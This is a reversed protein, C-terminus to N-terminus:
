TIIKNRKIKLKSRSKNKKFRFFKREIKVPAFNIKKILNLNEEVYKKIDNIFNKYGDYGKKMKYISELGTEWKETVEPSVLPTKEIHKILEAGKDSCELKSKQVLYCYVRKKLTEIINARTAPTGLNYKEMLKLINAESYQPPPQTQREEYQIQEVNLIDGEKIEVNITDKMDPEYLEKWGLQQNKRGTVKFKYKGVQLIINYLDYVYDPYFVGLFKRMILDYIKKHNETLKDNDDNWKQMVIIAYHDTLKSDNFIFKNAFMKPILDSRDIKKLIGAVLTRSSEALFQSDTRPYSILKHEYLDQALNLTKQASFKYLLNAERQLSTLSHLLPPKERVTKKEISIIKATKIGKLENVIKEAQEKTLRFEKDSDKKNEEDEINEEEKQDKINREVILYGRMTHKNKNFDGYVVAYTEPKFEKRELMRKYILYLTPTQVRGISWVNGKNTEGNNAKLTCARTLNIGVYWDSMMRALACWYLSDFDKAPKLTKLNKLIVDKTLAESTWFRYTKNWDNWGCYQLVLRAILEGERGPDTAIIVGDSQKLLKKITNIQKACNSDIPQYQFKDPFMPLNDWKWEPEVNSKEEDIKLLHGFGWTIYYNNNEFYGDKKNGGLANFFDRAVSPKECFILKKAM